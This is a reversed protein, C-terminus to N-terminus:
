GPAAFRVPPRGHLYAQRERLLAPVARDQRLQPVPGTRATCGPVRGPRCARRHLLARRPGSTLHRIPSRDLRLEDPDAFQRPERNTAGTLLLVRAGAPIRTGAMTVERTTVRTGHDVPTWLRLTEGIADPMLAPRERLLDLHEPRDALHSLLHTLTNVSVGPGAIAFAVLMVHLEEGTM